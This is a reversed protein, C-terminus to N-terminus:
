IEVIIYTKGAIKYIDITNRILIESTALIEGPVHVIFDASQMYQPADGLYLTEADDPPDTIYTHELHDRDGIYVDDEFDVTTIYIRRETPDFKDNLVKELSFVQGNHDLRYDWEIKLMLFEAHMRSIPTTFANLFAIIVPKRLFTPLLLEVLKKWNISYM